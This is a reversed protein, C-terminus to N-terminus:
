YNIPEGDRLCTNIKTSVLMIFNVVLVYDRAKEFEDIKELKLYIGADNCKDPLKERAVRTLQDRLNVTQSLLSKISDSIQDIQGKIDVKSIQTL